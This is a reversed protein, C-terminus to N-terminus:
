VVGACLVGAPTTLCGMTLTEYCQKSSVACSLAVVEHSPLTRVKQFGDKYSMKPQKAFPDFPLLKARGAAMHEMEGYSSLIGAGFAQSCTIWSECCPGKSM